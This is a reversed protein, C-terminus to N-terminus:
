KEKKKRLQFLNEAILMDLEYTVKINETSGDIIYIPENPLYNLVVGCDDTVKFNKDALAIGYAQKITKLLFAQPTQGQRLKDRNPINKITNSESIEVITDTAPIAVDVANATDLANVANTIIETTVLPRVADHFIMKYDGANEENSYANIAALSSDSREKGGQLIKKVKSYANRSVITEIEAVFSPNIVIAIEHIANCQQFVEITHEIITKGAITIFQKPLDGGFRAGKGGALIIGINKM